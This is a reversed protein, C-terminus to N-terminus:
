QKLFDDSRRVIQQLFTNFKDYELTMSDTTMSIIDYVGETGFQIKEDDEELTWSDDVTNTSSGDEDFEEILATSDARFEIEQYGEGSIVNGDERHLVSKWTGIILEDRPTEPQTDDTKDGCAAILLFVAFITLTSKIKSM